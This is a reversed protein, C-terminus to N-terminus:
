IREETELALTEEFTGFMKESSASCDDRLGDDGYIEDLNRDDTFCDDFSIKTSFRNRKWKGVLVQPIKTIDQVEVLIWVAAFSSREITAPIVEANLKRGAVTEKVQDITTFPNLRGVVCRELWKMEEM